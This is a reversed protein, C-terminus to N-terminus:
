VSRLKEFLDKMQTNIDGIKDEELEKGGFDSIFHTNNQLHEDAVKQGMMGGLAASLFNPKGAQQPKSFLNAMKTDIKVGSGIGDNKQRLLGHSDVSDNSKDSDTMSEDDTFEMGEEDFEGGLTM